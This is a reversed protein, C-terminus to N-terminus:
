RQYVLHGASITTHVRIDGLDFTGVELPDRDLVAFDASKGVEISGSVDDYGNAYATDLTYAQLPVFM